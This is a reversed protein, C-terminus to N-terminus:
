RLTFPTLTTVAAMEAVGNCGAERRAPWPAVTPRRVRSTPLMALRVPSSSAPMRLAAGDGRLHDQAGMEM